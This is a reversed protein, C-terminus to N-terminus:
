NWGEETRAPIDDLHQPARTPIWQQRAVGFTQQATHHLIADVAFVLIELGLAAGVRPLVEEALIRLELRHDGVHGILLDPAEVTATVIRALHIRCVGRRHAVFTLWRDNQRLGHLAETQALAAFSLHDGVLLLLEGLFIQLREAIPEVNWDGILVDRAQWELLWILAGVLRTI